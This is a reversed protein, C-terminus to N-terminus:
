KGGDMLRHVYKMKDAVLPDLNGYTGDVKRYGHDIRDVLDLLAVKVSDPLRKNKCYDIASM